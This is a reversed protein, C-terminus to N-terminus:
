RVREIVTVKGFTPVLQFYNINTKPAYVQGIAIRTTRMTTQAPIFFNHEALNYIHPSLCLSLLLLVNLNFADKPGWPCLLYRYSLPQSGRQITAKSSQRSHPHPNLDASPTLLPAARKSRTCKSVLSDVHLVWAALWQSKVM